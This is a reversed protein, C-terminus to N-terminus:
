QVVPMVAGYSILLLRITTICLVSAHLFWPLSRNQIGLSADLERNVVWVGWRGESEESLHPMWVDILYLIM